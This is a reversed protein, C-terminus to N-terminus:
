PPNMWRVPLMDTKAKIADIILDLRGGNVWDTQLEDTDALIAAIETDIYGLMTAIETDIYGAITALQYDLYKGFSGATSHGSQLEDWILDVAAATLTMADGAKSPAYASQTANLTVVPNGSIAPTAIASGGWQTVDVELKDTSFMSDYVNAPYVVCQLRVTLAGSVHVFIVLPGATDTDTADLTAYYIGNSIHTGGGSNKNALTTAGAKWIKIDTNNITLGTEETNGDTSDVFHGLPVEQSATSQKLPLSM